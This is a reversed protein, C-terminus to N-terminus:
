FPYGIAFHLAFRNSLKGTDFYGPKISAPDHLAVGLDLRIVLFELDYRLGAGSGLALDNFLDPLHFTGGQRTEDSRMTWVNGADVFWAGMLSGFLPFRLEINGELKIDGTQDMYSYKRGRSVFRGPGVSRIPFARVSNAGGVYFQDNYPVIDTNGYSYAVGGMIRTALRTNIGLKYSKRIESSVKIFQAFPNNFVNKNKKSFSQGSMACIGSTLAGAEKVTLQWIIPNRSSAPSTYTYTYQMAPVFRDRMSVALSPSVNLISDFETTTHILKDFSLSIPTLEHRSTNNRRWTYALDVGLSFMNYFGSRNLWDTSFSISTSAPFRLRRPNMGPFVFRPVDLSVKIGAEYYNFLAGSQHKELNTKWEYSGFIKFSLLEARKFANKKKIALSMGPGIRESNRETVNVEFDASYRKDLVANVWLDLTDCASTTDRPVYSLSLQSFIGLNSLLQQTKQQDDYSYLKGKRHLLNRFIVGLKVPQSAGSYYYTGIGHRMRHEHQITDGYNKLVSINARGIYWQKMVMPPINAKPQMRLLVRYPKAITDAKYTASSPIYYYFGENRLMSAIRSQESSLTVASFPVGRKLLSGSMNARILSDALGEFGVYEVTDIRFIRGTHINYNIRAIHQNKNLQLSFDSHGHFYGYNRLVNDAVKIRTEPNVNSILVPESGMTKYLFHGLGKKSDSWANYAWLGIPLPTRYRSSGFFSNNPACAFVAELEEKVTELVANEQENAIRISDREKQSAKASPEEAKDGASTGGGTFADSIKDVADAISVIVGGAYKADGKRYKDGQDVYNISNIGTYLIEGEPLKSTTSCGAFVLTLALLTLYATTLNKM